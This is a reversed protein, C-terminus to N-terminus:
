PRRPAAKAAIFPEVGEASLPRSILYGQIQACDLARLRELQGPTEVGEAIVGMRLNGALATISRVVEEERAGKELDQVFSHHIKLSDIPPRRLGKFPLSGSGFDDLYLQVHLNKLSELSQVAESFGDLLVSETIELTLHRADLGTERLIRRIEEAIPSRSFHKSSVNVHIQPRRERPMREHWRSMQGCATRLVWLDIPLILGSEEAVALFQEPLLLGREPHEWRLLAELGIIREDKVSAIPQYHVRFEGREFARRLDTELKLREVARAHMAPDFSEYRARGQEKARYLATDADRLLDEPADHAGALAVGISVSAALEQGGISFPARLAQLIREAVRAVDESSRIEELLITFEDGGLRALTDGPRVLKEVRRAFDRLLQDGSAHGM